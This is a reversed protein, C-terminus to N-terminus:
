GLYTYWQLSQRAKAVVEAGEAASLQGRRVLEEAAAKMQELVSEGDWQWGMGGWGMGDLFDLFFSDGSKGLRGSGVPDCM